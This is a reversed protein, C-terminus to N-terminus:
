ILHFNIQLRPAVVIRAGYIIVLSCCFAAEQVALVAQLAVPQLKQLLWRPACTFLMFFAWIEVMPHTKREKGFNLNFKICAESPRTHAPWVCVCWHCVAKVLQNQHTEQHSSGYGLMTTITSTTATTTSRNIALIRPLNGRRTYREKITDVTFICKPAKRSSFCVPLLTIWEFRKKKKSFVFVKLIQIYFIYGPKHCDLNKFFIM